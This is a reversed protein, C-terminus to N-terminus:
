FLTQEKCAWLGKKKRIRNLLLFEYSVLYLKMNILLILISKQLIVLLGISSFIHLHLVVGEGREVKISTRETDGGISEKLANYFM